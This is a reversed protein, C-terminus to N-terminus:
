CTPSPSRYRDCRVGLAGMNLRWEMRANARRGTRRDFKTPCRSAADWYHAGARRRRTSRDGRDSLATSLDAASVERRYGAAGIDIESTARLQFVGRLLSSVVIEMFLRRASLIAMTVPAPQTPGPHPLPRAVANRNACSPAFTKATSRSEARSSSVRARPRSIPPVMSGNQQSMVSPLATARITAAQVSVQPPRCTSTLLTPPDAAPPGASIDSSTHSACTSRLRLLAKRAHLCASGMMSCSRPPAITLMAEVEPKRQVPEACTAYAAALAPTM